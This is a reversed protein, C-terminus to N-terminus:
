FSPSWLNFLFGIWKIVVKNLSQKSATEIHTNQEKNRSMSKKTRQNSPILKSEDSLIRDHWVCLINGDISFLLQGNLIARNKEYRFLNTRM